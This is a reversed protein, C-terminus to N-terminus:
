SINFDISSKRIHAIQVCTECMSPHVIRERNDNRWVNNGLWIGYHIVLPNSDFLLHMFTKYELLMIIVFFFIDDSNPGISLTSKCTVVLYQWWPKSIFTESLIITLTVCGYGNLPGCFMMHMEQIRRMQELVLFQNYIAFGCSFRSNASLVYAIEYLCRRGANSFWPVEM